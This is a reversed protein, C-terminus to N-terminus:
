FRLCKFKDFARDVGFYFRSTSTHLGSKSFLLVTANSNYNTSQGSRGAEGRGVLVSLLAKKGKENRNRGKAGRKGRGRAREHEGEM